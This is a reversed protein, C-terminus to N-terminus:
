IFKTNSCIYKGYINMHFIYIFDKTYNVNMRTLAMIDDVKIFSTGIFFRILNITTM